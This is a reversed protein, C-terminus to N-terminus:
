IQFIVILVLVFHPVILALWERPNHVSYRLWTKQLFVHNAFVLFLKSALTAHIAMVAAVIILMVSSISESAFLTLGTITLGFATYIGHVWGAASIEQKWILSDPSETFTYFWHFLFSLGIGIGSFMVVEPATWDASYHHVTFWLLPTILFVDGWMGLHYIFPLGTSHQLYKRRMQSWLLTQNRYSLLAEIAVCGLSLLAIVTATM